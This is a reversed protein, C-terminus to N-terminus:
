LISRTKLLNRSTGSIWNEGALLHDVVALLLVSVRADHDGGGIGDMWVYM